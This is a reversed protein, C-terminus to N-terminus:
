CMLVLKSQPLQLIARRQMLAIEAPSKILRCQVTVPDASIYELHAAEKRVGDLIFFRLREEMGIRGSRIGADKLAAAILKYPSEDEQWVYVDKGIKLLERFRDEEFAPCVYKIDGKSPIVAVMTRESPWWSVGTFYVMTTGADVVIAEIKNETMLQQAKAIRSLRESNSIPAVDNAVRLDTTFMNDKAKFSSFSTVISAGAAIVSRNIFDRRKLGM